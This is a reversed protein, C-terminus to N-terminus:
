VNDSLDSALGFPISVHRLSCRKRPVSGTRKRCELPSGSLVCFSISLICGLRSSSYSPICDRPSTISPSPWCWFERPSRGSSPVGSSTVMTRGEQSISRGSPCNLCLITPPPRLSTRSTLSSTSATLNLLGQGPLKRRRIDDMCDFVVLRCPFWLIQRLRSRRERCGMYLHVWQPTPGFLDGSSCRRHHVHIRLHHHVIVQLTNAPYRFRRLTV